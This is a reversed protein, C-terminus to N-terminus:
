QDYRGLVLSSNIGGFGFSNSILYDIRAARGVNPIYDLDCDPDPNHHNITPPLWQKSFVLACIAAEVAGAAGLSHGLMSKSSSVPIQFARDQFVQKIAATEHKDNLLTASGHANIYGIDAPQLRAQALADTICRVTCLCDPRPAVMHYADNNCAYGMVECYISAGRRLAHGLEELVLIAAAEAM